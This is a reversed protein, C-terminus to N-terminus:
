RLASAERIRQVVFDKEMTALFHGLRPGATRNILIKYLMQFGGKTGIKSNKGADSVINHISEANWESASLLPLLANLYAVEDDSPRVDPMTKSVSFRVTEPAFGNLWFRVCEVRKELRVLDDDTANDLDGNRKLIRVVGDLGDSMQVVNVLHRYPIHLPMKKPINGHNSLEYARVANEEAEAAGGEFFFSEMRDYEDAMDLIGIEPDFDIHREPNVRLFTYMLVEPPTMNIADTGTVSSGTSKHMQGKGKLQVFEYPIPHPAVGGFIKEVIPIGTDYSGGAAAHDKGFPEASVGFIKWKAPWELRWTLKGDGKRIDAKGEHGCKECRYGLYPYAYSDLDPQKVFRGCKPCLPTYPAYSEMKERQSVETLIKIVHDRKTISADIMEAFMGKEYLEHTWIVECKVGIADIADLFPMIFHDAYTRHSGCPCPIRCIPKGVHGEFTEDLFPYRKRLPDFSDILYILKVDSGMSVIASRVAEATIAERLSGVHIHGTPSIGTAILPREYKAIVEKAIVDAWHM